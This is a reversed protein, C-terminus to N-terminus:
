TPVQLGRTLRLQERLEEIQLPKSLFHDMGAEQCQQRDSPSTNATLAVIRPQRALAAARLARTADLGDMVPMQLDMLVLDYARTCALTLAEQGNGAVDVECGLGLLVKRAITQNVPNDEALLVCIGAGDAARAKAESPAGPPVQALVADVRVHFRFTTGQDLQSDVTIRGGMMAVLRACIALGLGTGGHRRTSSSDAQAFPEFLRPLSQASIGIGTDAVEVDLWLAMGEPRGSATLSVKGKSTFKVANALLNAVIQLLRDPDTSVLSPLSDSLHVTLAVGRQQAVSRHLAAVDGLGARLDFPRPSLKLHGAELRSFDLLDNIVTLLLDGSRRVVRVYDLQDPELRTLRLLEATGLIGNLPTRLEHSMVALFESKARTGAEARVLATELQATRTQVQAELGTTLEQLRGEAVRLRGIDQERSALAATLQLNLQQNKLEGAELAEIARRQRQTLALGMAFVICSIAVVNIFFFLRERNPEPALAARTALAGDFVGSLATLACYGALCWAAQRPKTLTLSGVLAIMAWLMVGGSPFLGGLSWQFLFPLLLSLAVQVARARELKRTVALTGLNLSTLGVYSLPVVSPGYSGFALCLGGWLLGGGSMLVGGLVLTQRGVREMTSEGPHAGVHGFLDLLLSSRAHLM